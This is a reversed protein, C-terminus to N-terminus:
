PDALARWHASALLAANQVVIQLLIPRILRITAFFVVIKGNEPLFVHECSFSNYSICSQLSLYAPLTHLTARFVVKHALTPFFLILCPLLPSRNYSICSLLSLYRLRPHLKKMSLWRIDAFLCYVKSLILM